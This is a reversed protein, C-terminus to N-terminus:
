VTTCRSEAEDLANSEASYPFMKTKQIHIQNKQFVKWKIAPRPIYPLCGGQTPIKPAPRLLFLQSRSEEWCGPCAQQQQQDTGLRTRSKAAGLIAARWGERYEVIERLKSVSKNKSDTISDLWRTGQQGRRRRGEIKGLMLTKESDARRIPPGLIPAKAEADSRGILIWTSKRKRGPCKSQKAANKPVHPHQINGEVVVVVM